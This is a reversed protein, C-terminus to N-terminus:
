RTADERGGLCVRCADHWAGLAGLLRYITGDGLDHATRAAVVPASCYDCPASDPWPPPADSTM